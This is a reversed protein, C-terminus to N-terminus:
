RKTAQLSKLTEEQFNNLFINKIPFRLHYTQLNFQLIDNKKFYLRKLLSVVIKVANKNLPMM